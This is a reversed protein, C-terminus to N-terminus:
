KELLRDIKKEMRKNGEVLMKIDGRMEAGAERQRIENEYVDDRLTNHAITNHTGLGITVAVIFVGCLSLMVKQWGNMNKPITM